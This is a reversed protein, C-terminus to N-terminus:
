FKRCIEFIHNIIRYSISFYHKGYGLSKPIGDLNFYKAEKDEILVDIKDLDLIRPYLLNDDFQPPYTLGNRRYTKM